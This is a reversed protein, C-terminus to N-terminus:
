VDCPWYPPQLEGCAEDYAADVEAELDAVHAAGREGYLEGLLSLRAAAESLKAMEFHEVLSPIEAAGGGAGGGRRVGGGRAAAADGRSGKQRRRDQEEFRQKWEETLEWEAPQEGDESSDEGGGGLSLSDGNGFFIPEGLAPPIPCPEPAARGQGGAQRGEQEASGTTAASVEPEAPLTATPPSDSARAGGAASWAPSFHQGGGWRADPVVPPSRAGDSLLDGAPSPGECSAEGAPPGGRGTYVETAGARGQPGRQAGRLYDSAGHHAGYPAQGQPEPPWQSDPQNHRFFYHYYERHRQQQQEWYEWYEAYRARYEEERARFERYEAAADGRYAGHGAGPAWYRGRSVERDGAPHPVGWQGDYHHVEYPSHAPDTHARWDDRAYSGDAWPSARRPGAWGARAAGYGM